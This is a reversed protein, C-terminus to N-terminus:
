IRLWGTMAAPVPDDANMSTLTARLNMVEGELATLRENVNM